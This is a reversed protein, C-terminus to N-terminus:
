VRAVLDDTRVIAVDVRGRVTATFVVFRDGCCFRPHPDIHYNSGIYGDMAPNDIVKLTKGTQGDQFHVTTAAGRYWNDCADCVLYRGDASSHSHLCTTVPWQFRDYEGTHVNVRCTEKTTHWVSWAHVGDPDWWEHTCVTPENYVSRPAEGRCITWMRNTVPFRLGTIPEAHFDEAFLVLDPDTPCFLAHNHMRDFQHWLEFDGGDVPLTGFLYRPWMAVDVFFARGDSSRSLHTALRTVSRNRTVDPPLSNVYEAAADPQPGRKWISAGTTWFVEATDPDVFPSAHQFQTDPYHRVTQEEADVVGLMRGYSGSGSPPYVYYFWLYRGDGSLGDHTFYFSQQVPAADRTLLWIELGTDPQTWSEFLPSTRPDLM